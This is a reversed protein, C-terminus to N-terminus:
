DFAPWQSNRGSGEHDPAMSALSPSKWPDPSDDEGFVRNEKITAYLNSDPMEQPPVFETRRLADLALEAQDNLEADDLPIDGLEELGYASRNHTDPRFIFAVSACALIELM